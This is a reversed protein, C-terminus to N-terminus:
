STEGAAAAPVVGASRSSDRVILEPVLPALRASVDEGNQLDLLLRMAHAGLEPINVRMTTLSPAVYRAIPIDDFGALAISSVAFGVWGYPSLPINAAILIAGAIGFLTGVWELLKASFDLQM